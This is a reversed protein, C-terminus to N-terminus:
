LGQLSKMTRTINHYSYSAVVAEILTACRDDFLEITVTKITGFIKSMSKRVVVVVETAIIEHIQDDFM